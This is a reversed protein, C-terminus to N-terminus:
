IIEIRNEKTNYRITDSDIFSQLVGSSSLEKVTGCYMKGNDVLWVKDALRLVLELDHVSVIVAKGKEKALKKLLGLLHVKSPYDLFATPEDLLLLPTEQALAKAVLCKQREGDSLTSIKRHALHSVGMDRMAGDVVENDKASLRGMFGTYPTRGLSVLERVTLLASVPETLVVSISKAIDHHNMSAVDKGSYEVLGAIPPQYAAITRLLTSKGAGNRGILAVMEGGSLVADISSVVPVADCGKGYGVSVDSIVLASKSM